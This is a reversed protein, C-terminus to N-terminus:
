HVKKKVSTWDYVDDYLFGSKKYLQTFLNYLYNYNPKEVFDLSKVYDMYTKFEKPLGQCLQENTTNKKCEYIMQYKADRTMDKQCLGQWPLKGRIFYILMYGISEMDDRRSLEYGLHANLSTYRITGVLKKNTILPIHTNDKRKFFKCLGFDIIHVNNSNLGILFNEPKIDRHIIGRAHVYHIKKIIEQALGLVTKLTFHHGCLGLLNELNPGLMEIVMVNYDDQVGSWYIKPVGKNERYLYRYISAESTLLQVEKNKLELKIAVLKDPSDAPVSADIGIYIEGFSGVGLQKGLVYKNNIVIRDTISRTSCESTATLTGSLCESNIM